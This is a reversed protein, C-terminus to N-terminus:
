RDSPRFPRRRKILLAALRNSPAAADPRVADQARGFGLKEDAVLAFEATLDGNGVLTPLCGIHDSHCHSVVLLDVAFPAAHGLLQELQEPIGPSDGRRQFDGPHGSDILITRAGLRALICDGFKETGMDLLHIKLSQADSAPTEPM